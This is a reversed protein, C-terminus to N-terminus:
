SGPFYISGAEIGSLAASFFNTALLSILFFVEEKLTCVIRAAFRFRFQGSTLVLPGEMRLRQSIGWEPFLAQRKM